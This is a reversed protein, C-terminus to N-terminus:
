LNRILKLAESEYIDETFVELLMPQKTLEKALFKKMISIVEEKNEASFYEFGLDKAYHQVLDHSKRGYHGDAAVFEGVYEGMAQNGKHQYLHFETGGGNNILIIRINSGIHRNGLVNMDYFFALDGLVAFYLNNKHIFSAGVITSIVGDIGRCGVNAYSRIQKNKFEFFTWARMSNSLGFHVVANEPMLPIMKNALWINSFPLEPIRKYLEKIAKKYEMYYTNKGGNEKAYYSFFTFEPMEFIKTLKRFTDRIQGDESIRWVEKCDKLRGYTYYDASYEGIHILLDPHLLDNDVKEQATLITPHIKYNGSYGSTHDVLVVADYTSCFDDIVKNLEETWKWKAGCTIAIRQYSEGIEPFDSEADYHKIVNADPLKEVSFDMSYVTTLNIHVPGGGNRMLEHIARNMKLMCDWEDTLGRIHQIQVSYRIADKLVVTRDIFQPILNDTNVLSMTSTVALIPLKRHYAETLGALYERSATAGTCSIVVPEGSEAAMGCAMYAASREDPCSYMEFNGDYELSAVFTLNTTGPSVIVKRINNEKLLYVLMQIQREDSYCHGRCIKNHMDTDKIFKMAYENGNIQKKFKLLFHNAKFLGIITDMSLSNAWDIHYGNQIRPRITQGEEKESCAYSLIVEHLAMECIKSIFWAYDVVHELVGSAFVTDVSIEPFEYKNFDCIFTNKDRACYDVPYYVISEPLYGKLTMQGCGLDAVSQSDESIMASMKEVRRKWRDFDVKNSKNNEMDIWFVPKEM